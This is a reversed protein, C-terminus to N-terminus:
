SAPKQSHGRSRNFDTVASCNKFNKVRLNWVEITYLKGQDHTIVSGSASLREATTLSEKNPQVGFKSGGPAQDITTIVFTGSEYSWITEDHVTDFPNIKKSTHSPLLVYDQKWGHLKM